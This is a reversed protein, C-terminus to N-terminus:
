FRGQGQAGNLNGTQTNPVTNGCWTIEMNPYYPPWTLPLTHYGRGCHPCYGCHPCSSGPYPVGCPKGYWDQTNPSATQGQATPAINGSTHVKNIM